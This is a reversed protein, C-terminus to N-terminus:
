KKPTGQFFKKETSDIQLANCIRKVAIAMQADITNVSINLIQSVEKYKLQDERILKFIMKCRPPLAEIAKYMREMMESTVMIDHPNPLSDNVDIDFFDFPAAVLDRAKRSLKNLSANKVAVYLYVTINDIKKVSSRNTWLKVFLDEVVEEALESSRLLAMSFHHLKKHFHQYLEALAQQDGDAIRLQIKWLNENLLNM